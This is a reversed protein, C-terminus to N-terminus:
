KGIRISTANNIFTGNEVVIGRPLTMRTPDIHIGPGLLRMSVVALTIPYITPPLSGIPAQPFKGLLDQASGCERFRIEIQDSDHYDIKLYAGNPPSEVDFPEGRVFWENNVLLERRRGNRDLTSINLLLYGKDDRNFWILRHDGYTLIAGNGYHYGGAVGLIEKRMWDFKGQVVRNRMAGNEKFERCQARTFARAKAHHEGCIAVMRAPDHHREIHWEPDFHHYQLYPNGCGPVPCGFAVEQRLFRKM